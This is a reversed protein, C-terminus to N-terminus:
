LTTYIPPLRTLWPLEMTSHMIKDGRYVLKILNILCDHVFGQNIAHSGDYNKDM